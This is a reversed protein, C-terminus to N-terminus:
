ANASALGGSVTRIVQIAVVGSEDADDIQVAQVPRGLTYELVLKGAQVDGALAMQLYTRMLQGIEEPTIAERAAKRLEAMRKAQPNGSAIKNGPLFLGNSARGAASGIHKTGIDALSNEDSM